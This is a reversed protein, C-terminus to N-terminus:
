CVVACFWDLTRVVAAVHYGSRGCGSAKLGKFSVVTQSLSVKIVEEKTTFNLNTEDVMWYKQKNESNRCRKRLCNQGAILFKQLQFSPFDHLRRFPSSLIHLMFM